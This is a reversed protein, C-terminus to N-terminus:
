LGIGIINVKHKKYYEHDYINRGDFITKNRLNNTDLEWFEKWETALVVSHSDKAALYKDDYFFINNKVKIQSAVEEYNAMPDYLHLSHVKTALMNILKISVSERLDDTGPKFTLGWIAIRHKKSNIIGAKIIKNYFYNLQIENNSITKEIIGEQLNFKKKSYKLASLDKPFCSGGFGIGAYIFDSGIRPDSGLGKRIDHINANTKESIQSIENIFSIKTALFANAAYKTLEASSPSMNIIKNKNRSLPAYIKELINKSDQDNTGIVIRDPKFFDQVASGEKLFEPNSALKFNTNNKQNYKTLKLEIKTNTGLPITSKTVILTNPKGHKLISTICSNFNKLNPKGNNDPTDVCVFIIKNKCADKYSDTFILNKSPLNKKVLNKLQPEYFPIKGNVLDNVKNKSKDMCIVENGLEALCAGTVLGVYGTGIISIKM